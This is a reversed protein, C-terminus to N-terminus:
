QLEYEKIPNGLFFQRPDSDVKEGIRTIVQVMARAETVLARLQPLTDSSSRRLEPSLSAILADINAVTGNISRLLTNLEQLTLHGERVIGALDDKSGALTESLDALSDLITSIAEKNEQGTIRQLNALVSNIGQVTNPVDIMVAQLPSRASPITGIEGPKLPVLPSEATGGTIAVASAGTLGMMELSAVSDKRVPTDGRVQVIVEVKGPIIESLKVARVQGVRIGSFLVANGVSLGSVSYDFQIRYEDVEGDTPSASLWLIGYLIGVMSLLSFVGILVFRARIEM